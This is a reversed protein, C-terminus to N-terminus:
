ENMMRLTEISEPYKTQLQTQYFKLDSDDTKGSAILGKEANFGMLLVKPPIVVDPPWKDMLLKALKSASPYKNYTDYIELLRVRIWVDKPNMEIAKFLYTVKEDYNSVCRELNMFAKEPTRYLLNNAVNELVNRGKEIDVKSECLFYGYNNQIDLDKPATKVARELWKQAEKKQNVAALTLGKVMMAPAYNENAQLARDVNSMASAFDNIELYASALTTYPKEPEKREPEGEAFAMLPVCLLSLLIKKM